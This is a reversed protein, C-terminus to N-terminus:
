FSVRYWSHTFISKKEGTSNKSTDHWIFLEGPLAVFTQKHQAVIYRIIYPSGGLNAIFHYIASLIVSAGKVFGSQKLLKVFVFVPFFM